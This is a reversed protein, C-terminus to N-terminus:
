AYGLAVAPPVRTARRAPWACALVATAAMVALWHLAAAADPLYQAPVPFMIRGFAEALLGSVPLSLPLALLAALAVIVLGEVLVLSLLTRDSAGLARMVGIERRRELVSLGMTSALGMGGVALMVWAMVGLFQVVMLLHDELVRRSEDQRQSAAVAMGAQLLESRLRQVTDLQVAANRSALAVM